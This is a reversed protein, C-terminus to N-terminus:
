PEAGFVLTALAVAARRDLTGSPTLELYDHDGAEDPRRVIVGSEIGQHVIHMNAERTRDFKGAIKRVIAHKFSEETAFASGRQDPPSDISWTNRGLRAFASRKLLAITEGEPTSVKYTTRPLAATSVQAILLAPKDGDYLTVRTRPVLAAIIASFGLSLVISAAAPGPRKEAILFLAAAIGAVIVIGAVLTAVISVVSAFSRYTLVVQGDSNRVNVPEGWRV